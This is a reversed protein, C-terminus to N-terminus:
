IGINFEIHRRLDALGNKNLPWLKFLASDKCYIYCCKSVLKVEKDMQNKFIKKKKTKKGM